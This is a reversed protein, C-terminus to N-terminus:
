QQIAAELWDRHNPVFQQDTAVGNADFWYAAGIDRSSGQVMKNNYAICNAISFMPDLCRRHVWLPVGVWGNELNAGFQSARDVITQVSSEPKTFIATKIGYYNKIQDLMSEETVQVPAIQSPDGVVMVRKARWFAGLAQVPLAQGAEDIFLNDISEEAMDGFFSGFSAFTSSIVPVLFQILAWSHNIVEPHKAKILHKKPWTQNLVHTFPNNKKDQVIQIITLKRVKMAEVFARTQLARFEDDFWLISLQIQENTEKDWFERNLAKVNKLSKFYSMATNYATKLKLEKARNHQNKEKLLQMQQEIQKVLINGHIKKQNAVDQKVLLDRIDRNLTRIYLEIKKAEIRQKKFILFGSPKGAKENQIQSNLTSIKNGNETSESESAIVDEQAISLKNELSDLESKVSNTTTTEKSNEYAQIDLFYQATRQKIDRVENLTALFEMRTTQWDGGDEAETASDIIGELGTMLNDRNTSNGGAASFFGWTKEPVPKDYQNSYAEKFYDIMYEDTSLDPEEPLEKSINEVASNNSSAVVVGYGMLEPALHYDIHFQPNEEDWAFHEGKIIAEKPDTFHALQESQKVMMDAFVDKLLTTKGTGPPGNVSRINNKDNIALNVAVQQMFSLTYAPKSPWRGDPFNVPNLIDNFISKDEGELNIRKQADFGDIYRKVNGYRESGAALILQIDNAFFSHLNTLNDKHIPMAYDIEESAAAFHSRIFKNIEKLKETFSLNDDIFDQYVTELKQEFDKIKESVDNINNLLVTNAPVFTTGQVVEFKENFALMASFNKSLDPEVVDASDDSKILDRLEQGKYIGFFVPFILDETKEHRHKTQNSTLIKDIKNPFLTEFFSSNVTKISDFDLQSIKNSDIGIKDPLLSEGIQDILKLAKIIRVRQEDSAM